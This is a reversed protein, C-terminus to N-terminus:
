DGGNNFDSVQKQADVAEALEKVFRLFERLEEENRFEATVSMDEDGFALWPNDADIM